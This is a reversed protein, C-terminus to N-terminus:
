DEQIVMNILSHLGLFTSLGYLNLGMGIADSGIIVDYGSDPDNFLAAQESRIEPPLRGYAVACRMGTQEEVQRKLAFIGSRSFTVICDGKQVRSLDGELSKEEIVLPTLREYRNIILEDGTEKLLAEIVPIATEEGCLHIEKAHLGLVAATWASGRDQDAIMQIEDVVAVDLLRKMSLMEITCSWLGADESVYKEEEGTVLNCERAFKSTGQKQVTRRNSDQTVVADLSSVMNPEVDAVPDMGLPVIDGKNLREWVEHALLRLPGAYVGTSAAALARLANHTKGSNTPGVHMYFKRRISRAEPYAEAPYSLDAAERLQVISQITSPSVLAELASRHDPDSAWSYFVNTLCADAHRDLSTFRDLNYSNAIGPRTLLGGTLAKAFANMLVPVHRPPIGFTELRQAALANSAAWRTVRSQLAAPVDEVAVEEKVVPPPAKKGWQKGDGGGGRPSWGRRQGGEAAFKGKRNDYAQDSSRFRRTLYQTETFWKDPFRTRFLSTRCTSFAFRQMHLNFIPHFGFIEYALKPMGRTSRHRERM